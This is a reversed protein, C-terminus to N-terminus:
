FQVVLTHLLQFQPDSAHVEEVIYGGVVEFDYDFGVMSDM